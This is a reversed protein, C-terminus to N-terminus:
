RIKGIELKRAVHVLAAFPKEWVYMKIVGMAPLIESMLKLRDDTLVISTSRFRSLINAMFCQFPVYLLLIALCGFSAPGTYAYLIVMAVILEPLSMFIHLFYLINEVNEFLLVDLVLM